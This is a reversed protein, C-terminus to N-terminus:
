PLLRLEAWMIDGAHPAIKLLNVGSRLSEPPFEAEYGGTAGGALSELNTFPALRQAKHGNLQLDLPANSVNPIGQVGLIVLVRPKPETSSDTRHHAEPNPLKGSHFVLEAGDKMSKPLQAGNSVGFPVTDHFTLPFRRVSRAIKESGVGEELLERYNELSVSRTQSDMWNFLYVNEAGRARHADAFGYLSALDCPIANSSPYPRINFELGPALATDAGAKALKEKWLEVPIDFDSTTWFPCPVLLDVLGEKAWTVADMGLELAADPVAPVRAALFIRHGRKTEWSDALRRVERMFQTLIEAEEREKGPTLHYSFRMWDLELGDFDYREFLERIFAMTFERVEPHRFNLAWRKWDGTFNEPIRRFEPHTRWFESHMFNKEENVSHIDNMRTSIWPSIGKERARAIWVAYPDLGKEHLIRANQPWQHKPEEGDVPDWIAERTRSRFNARMANPCLFLHTVKTGAYQDIFEHLGELTMKEPPRTGFFHSNDENIIFMEHLLETENGIAGASFITSGLFILFFLFPTSKM